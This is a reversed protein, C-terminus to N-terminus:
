VSDIFHQIHYMAAGVASAEFRYTCPIIYQGDDGFTNLAELKTRLINFHPELFGGVYGGLIIPSDFNMRINNIAIALNELYTDFITLANEDKSDVLNFFDKLNDKAHRSLILASCYSDVCGAKGCYCTTGHPILTMHGFEGSRQNKGFYLQNKVAVAGGVSNSLSLYVILENISLGSLEALCAANADNICISQYPISDMFTKCPLNRLGLAHSYTIYEGEADIIGPISIGVGIIQKESVPHEKMYDIFIRKLDNYYFEDNKFILSKREVHHVQGLLDVQVISVHGQTIDVGIAIRSEANPVLVKAKRGGTSEFLGDHKILHKDMLEHTYSLVTPMSMNLAISIERHSTKQVQIIYKFILNRNANLNNTPM